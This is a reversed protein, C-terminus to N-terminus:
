KGIAKLINVVRELEDPSKGRLLEVVAVLRPDDPAIASTAALLGDVVARTRDLPVPAKKKGDDDSRSLAAVIGALITLLLARKSPPVAQAITIVEKLWKDGTPEADLLEGMTVGFALSCAYVTELSAVTEGREIVGVHNPSINIKEALEAQSWGRALRKARV